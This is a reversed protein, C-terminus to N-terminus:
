KQTRPRVADVHTKLVDKREERRYLFKPECEREKKFRDTPLLACAKEEVHRKRECRLDAVEVDNM